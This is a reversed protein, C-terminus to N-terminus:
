KGSHQWRKLEPPGDDVKRSDRAKDDQQYVCELRMKVHFLIICVSTLYCICFSYTIEDILRLRDM